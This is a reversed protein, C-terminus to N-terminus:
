GGFGRVARLETEFGFGRAARLETSAQLKQQLIRLSLFIHSLKEIM